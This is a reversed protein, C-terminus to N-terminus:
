RPAPEIEKVLTRHDLRVLRITKGTEAAVRRAYVEGSTITDLTSAVMPYHQDGITATIIGEGGNTDVAVWAWLSAIEFGQSPLDVFVTM